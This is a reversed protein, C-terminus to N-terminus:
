CYVSVTATSTVVLLQVLKGSKKDSKITNEIEIIGMQNNRAIADTTGYWVCGDMQITTSPAWVTSIQQPGIKPINASYM